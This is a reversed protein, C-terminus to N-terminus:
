RRSNSPTSFEGVNSISIYISPIESRGHECIPCENGATISCHEPYCFTKQRHRPGLNSSNTRTRKRDM